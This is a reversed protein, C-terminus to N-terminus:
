YFHAPVVILAQSDPQYNYFVNYNSNKSRILSITGPETHTKRAADLDRGGNGLGSFSWGRSLGGKKAIRIGFDEKGPGSRLLWVRGSSLGFHYDSFSGIWALYERCGGTAWKAHGDSGDPGRERRVGALRLNSVKLVDAGSSPM